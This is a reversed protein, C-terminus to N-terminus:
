FARMGDDEENMASVPAGFVVESIGPMKAVSEFLCADCGPVDLVTANAIGTASPGSGKLVNAARVTCQTFVLAIGDGMEIELPEADGSVGGTAMESKTKCRKLVGDRM